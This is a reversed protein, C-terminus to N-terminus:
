IGRTVFNWKRKKGGERGDRRCGREGGEDGFKGGGRKGNQGQMPFFAPVLGLTVMVNPLFVNRSISTMWSAFSLEATRVTSDM